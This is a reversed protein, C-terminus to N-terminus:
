MWQVYLALGCVVAEMHSHYSLQSLVAGTVCLNNTQFGNLTEGSGGGEGGGGLFFLIATNADMIM